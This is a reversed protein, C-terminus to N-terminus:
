YPVPPEQLSSDTGARQRESRLKSNFLRDAIKNARRVSSDIQVHGMNERIAELKRANIEKVWDTAERETAARMHYVKRITSVEFENSGIYTANVGDLPIPVGKISEDIDTTFRYLYSGLLVFFRTKWEPYMCPLVQPYLTTDKKDLYGSRAPNMDLLEHCTLNGPKSAGMNM